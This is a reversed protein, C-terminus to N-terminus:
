PIIINNVTSRKNSSRNFKDHFATGFTAILTILLTSPYSFLSTIAKPSPLLSKGINWAAPNLTAIFHIQLSSIVPQNHSRRRPLRRFGGPAPIESNSKFPYEMGQGVECKRVFIPCILKRIDGMKESKIM